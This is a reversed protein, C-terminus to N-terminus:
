SPLRLVDGARVRRPDRITNLKCIERVAQRNARSGKAGLLDRAITSLTEGRAVRHRRPKRGAKRQPVRVLHVGVFRKLIVTACAFVRQGRMVIVDDPDTGWQLGDNDVFWAASQHRVNGRVRILPPGQGRPANVPQIAMDELAQCAQECTMGSLTPDTPWGGLIIRLPLRSSSTGEFVTASVQGHRAVDAWGGAGGDLSPYGDDLRAHVLLEDRAALLIVQGAVPKLHETRQRWPRALIIPPRRTASIRAM